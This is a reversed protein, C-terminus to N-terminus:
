PSNASPKEAWDLKPDEVSGLQKSKKFSKGTVEEYAALLQKMTLVEGAVELATNVLSADSVALWM